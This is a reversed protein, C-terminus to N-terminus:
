IEDTELTEEAKGTGTALILCLFLAVGCTLFILSERAVSTGGSAFPALGVWMVHVILLLSVVIRSAFYLFLPGIDEERLAVVAAISSLALTVLAVVVTVVDAILATRGNPVGFAMTCFALMAPGGFFIAGAVVADAFWLSGEGFLRERVYVLLALVAFLGISSAIAVALLFGAPAIM